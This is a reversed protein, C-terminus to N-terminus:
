FRESQDAATGILWVPTAPPISGACAKRSSPLQRSGTSDPSPRSLRIRAVSSVSPEQSLAAM